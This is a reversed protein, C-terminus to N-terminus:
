GKSEAFGEIRRTSADTLYTEIIAEEITEQGTRASPSRSRKASSRSRTIDALYYKDGTSLYKKGAVDFRRVRYFAFADCLHDIYAALTKDNMKLGAQSFTAAMSKLSSISGVNDMLFECTRKLQEANRIRYKQRVDRLVLTDLVDFIYVFRAREDPYLYSGPM